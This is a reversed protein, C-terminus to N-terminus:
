ALAEAVGRNGRKSHCAAAVHGGGLVWREAHEGVAECRDARENALGPRQVQLLDDLDVALLVQPHDGLRDREEDAAALADNVVGLVEEVSEVIVPVVRELTQADGGLRAGLRDDAAVGVAARQRM